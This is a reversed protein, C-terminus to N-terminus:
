ASAGVGLAVGAVDAPVELLEEDAAVAFDDLAERRHDLGLVGVDDARDFFGEGVLEARM